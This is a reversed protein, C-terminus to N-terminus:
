STIVKCEINKYKFPKKHMLNENPRLKQLDQSSQQYGWCENSNVKPSFLLWPSSQFLLKSFVRHCGLKQANSHFTCKEARFINQKATSRHMNQWHCKWKSTNWKWKWVYLNMNIYLESESEYIKVNIYLKWKWILEHKHEVKLKM